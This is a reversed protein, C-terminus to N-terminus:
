VKIWARHGDKKGYEAYKTFRSVKMGSIKAAYVVMGKQPKIDDLSKYSHDEDFQGQLSKLMTKKDQEKPGAHFLFYVQNSSSKAKEKSESKDKSSSKAKTKAESPAEVKLQAVIQQFVGWSTLPITVGKGSPKYEKDEKKKYFERVDVFHSGNYEKQVIQIQVAASKQIIM